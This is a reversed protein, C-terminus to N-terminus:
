RDSGLPGNPPLWPQLPCSECRAVSPRCADNGIRALWVSLRAVEAPDDPIAAEIVSRAADYDADPDIWGHRVLIRYTARDVPYVPRGLGELLIADATAPGIGPIRRLEERLLDTPTGTDTDSAVAWRVLAGLLRCSKAGLRAPPGGLVQEIEASPAESLAELEILGADRLAELATAVQRRPLMVQLFSALLRENPDGPPAVTTQGLHAALATAISPYCDSFWPM